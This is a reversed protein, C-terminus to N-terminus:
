LSENRLTEIMAEDFPDEGAQLAEIWNERRPILPMYLPDDAYADVFAQFDDIAGAFDGLLARALGRSDRYTATDPALPSPGSM